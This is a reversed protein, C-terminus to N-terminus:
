ALEQASVGAALLADRLPALEQEVHRWHELSTDYLPRRIQAASATTSVEPNRHFELCAPQWDLGLSALLRRVEPELGRVLDEYRVRLVRGPLVEHWHRMLRRYGAIYRGIETLDYSFPYGDKFLTKYLAYGVAMPHREVEILSANPLAQAILGGYLYNLPMKDIFRGELGTAARARALYDRGLAAFDLHASRAVLERRPLAIGPFRAQVAAVIAHAFTDLEGASGLGSHSGLIRELLTTGSRPLGIVFIPADTAAGAAAPCPGPFAARIWDVTALDTEIDYRLHERRRRAGHRLAAFSRAFEGLDELEKALAYHIQVEGRWDRHARRARAELEPVHHRTPTQRRLESRNLYAEDDDPRLAIVADYDSEAGELDGVFRRVAARNFLFQAGRPELAVAREYCALAGRVDRALHRLTGLADWEAARSPACNAATDAAALAEARRGLALLCQARRIWLAPSLPDRALAQDLSALLALPDAGPARPVGPAVAAAPAPPRPTADAPPRNV